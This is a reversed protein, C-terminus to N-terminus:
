GQEGDKVKIQEYEIPLGFEKQLFLIFEESERNMPHEGAVIIKSAHKRGPWFAYEMLQGFAQRICSKASSAIKVEYFNFGNDTKLVIDIKNGGFPNEICVNNEGFENALEAALASQLISHRIDVCIEKEKTNYIRETTLQDRKSGFSFSIPQDDTHFSSSKDTEVEIYIDLLEDFTQLIAPYDFEPNDDIKGIFIFSHLSVIKPSITTVNMIESRNGMQYWWMRYEKFFDPREEIICNLKLIKPYLISVDPLTHSPELSFAIGHRLGEEEFGINFQLEKRGGYHFAWGNDSITVDRFIKRGPCRELRKINKRINQLDGIKYDVALTNIQEAIQRILM